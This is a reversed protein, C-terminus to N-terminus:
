TSLCAVLRVCVSQAENYGVV